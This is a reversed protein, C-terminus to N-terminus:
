FGAKFNRLRLANTLVSVSSLSMALAAIMPNLLPGGFLHLLGMAVPIGAANYFFAWFLNQKINRITARSLEIARPVDMIDDHMLVIDCSEIAVDTGNGIAMGVRAEALAPADNIGDGVMATKFGADNLEKIKAIKDEPLVGWIIEDVGTKEGVSKATNENDGTLMITKIGMSKLKKIAGPTTEKIRDAVGFVGLIDRGKILFMVTMADKYMSEAARRVEESPIIGEDEYFSANGLKYLKGEVTGEIGRGAVTKFSTVPLIDTNREKAEEMFARSLPHESGKELSTAISFVEEESRGFSKINEIRPKGETLTGTKDLVLVDTLHANELAEGSKILIGQEAGKGTGVMIATPTALGLACPCAIVLVSVLIKMAFSIDEGRVLWFIFALVALGIVVPVFYGSIKDALRAIPAKTSQADEVLRIIRSLTTDEGVRDARYRVTGGSSITASYIKDGERKEVPVPEGTLMSEDMYNEGSIVTGDSSASSGAKLIIIDGKRVEDSPIEFERGDREVLAVAPKLDMLKRIAESTRGKSINELYKGLTILALITGASEFYLNHAMHHNGRLVEYFGYFSYLLAASTGLAILSDMNPTFRILNSFGSTYFRRGSFIIPLTLILQTLAFRIPYLDPNIFAPVPLGIMPGMAIYILPVAFIMSFILRQRYPNEPPGENKEEEVKKKVTYGSKIITEEIEQNSIKAPDYTVTLKETAYNVGSEIIGDKKNLAREIAAACAACEMGGIDLTEKIVSESNKVSDNKKSDDTLEYGAKKVTSKIEDDSIKNEDYEVYLMNNAYNVVASEIGEKKGLVREIAAACAVCEMGQVGYKKKM